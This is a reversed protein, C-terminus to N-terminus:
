RKLEQVIYMWRSIVNVSTFKNDTGFVQLVFPPAHEILPQALVLYILTSKAHLEMIREIETASTAIFSFPKPMGTKSVIPLVLGVLQNTKPDYNIKDIIGSADEAIFIHKKANISKLYEVLEEIRLQGEIIKAKSDRIYKVSFFINADTLDDSYHSIRNSKICKRITDAKPFPLNASLTEYCAKGCLLYIYTAFYKIDDSFRATNAHKDTNATATEILKQLVHSFKCLNEANSDKLGDDIQNVNNIHKEVAKPINLLLARHGPLFKFKRDVKYRHDAILDRNEDVIKEIDDIYNSSLHELSSINEFGSEQLIKIIFNPVKSKLLFAEM